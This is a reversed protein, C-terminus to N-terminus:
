WITIGLERPLASKTTAVHRNDRTRSGIHVGKTREDRSIQLWPANWYEFGIITQIKIASITVYFWIALYVLRIVM